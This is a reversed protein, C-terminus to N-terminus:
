PVFHVKQSKYMSGNNIDVVPTGDSLSTPRYTINTGDPM